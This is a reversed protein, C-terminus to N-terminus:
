WPPGFRVLAAFSGDLSSGGVVIAGDSQLALDCGVIGANSDLFVQGGPAFSLDLSGDAQLAILSSRAIQYYSKFDYGLLVLSGDPRLVFGAVWNVNVNVLGDEGFSTDVSGDAHLVTLIGDFYPHAGNAGGALVIEGDARVAISPLQSHSLVVNGGQGFSQDLSGDPNLRVVGAKQYIAVFLPVATDPPINPAWSPAYFEVVDGTLLIKGDSQIAVGRAVARYAQM